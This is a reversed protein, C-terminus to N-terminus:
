GVKVLDLYCEEATDAATAFVELQPPQLNQFQMWQGWGGYRQGRPPYGDRAQYMFGGPRLAPGGRPVFRFFLGSASFAHAGVIAYTGGDLGNDLTLTCATWANAVLTTAATAHVTQVKGMVPTMPGDCLWVAVFENQAGANSQLAFADLEEYNDLQYPNLTFDHYRAPNEIATGVNVDSFDWPYMKRISGSTLQFRTLNTGVGACMALKSLNPPIIFGKGSTALIPDGVNTVQLLVSGNAISSFFVATHFM